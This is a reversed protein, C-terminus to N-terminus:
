ADLNIPHGSLQVGERNKENDERDINEILGDRKNHDILQDKLKTANM